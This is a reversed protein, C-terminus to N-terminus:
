KGAVDASGDSNHVHPIIVATVMSVRSRRKGGGGGGGGRTTREGGNELVRSTM